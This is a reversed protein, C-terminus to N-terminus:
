HAAGARGREHFRGGGDCDVLSSRRTTDYSGRTRALGPRPATPCESVRKAVHRSEWERRSSGEGGRRTRGDAPVARAPVATAASELWAKTVGSIPFRGRPALGQTQRRKRLSSRRARRRDPCPPRARTPHFCQCLPHCNRFWPHRHVRRCSRFRPCRLPRYSRPHPCRRHKPSPRRRRCLPYKLSRRRRLRRFPRISRRRWPCGMHLPLRPSSPSPTSSRCACRCFRRKPGAARGARRPAARGAFDVSRRRRTCRTCRAPRRNCKPHAGWPRGARCREIRRHGNPPPSEIRSDARTNCSHRLM